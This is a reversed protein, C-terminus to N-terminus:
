PHSLGITVTLSSHYAPSMAALNLCKWTANYGDNTSFQSHQLVLGDSDNVTISIKIGSPGSFGDGIVMLGDFQTRFTIANYSGNGNSTVSCESDSRPVYSSPEPFALSYSALTAIFLSTSPKM